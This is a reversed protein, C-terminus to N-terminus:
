PKFHRLILKDSIYLTKHAYIQLETSKGGCIAAQLHEVFRTRRQNQELHKLCSEPFISPILVAPYDYGLVLILTKEKRGWGKGGPPFSPLSHIPNTISIWNQLCIRFIVKLSMSHFHIHCTRCLQSKQFIYELSQPLSVKMHFDLIVTRFHATFIIIFFLNYICCAKNSNAVVMPFSLFLCGEWFTLKKVVCIPM